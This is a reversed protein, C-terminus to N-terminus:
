RLPPQEPQDENTQQWDLVQSALLEREDLSLGNPDFRWRNHWSLLPLLEPKGIRILWHSMLEGQSRGLGNATLSQEIRFFPSEQGPRILDLIEQEHKDPLIVQESSAIRWILFIVLVLGIGYLQKEYDEIKQDNWWLQFMFQYNGLFDWVPQLLGSADNELEFWAAPTTDVAVWQNGIWAIAWAHAHRQRVIYMNLDSNWEKIAYGVVYRSPIGLHRLMITTASAFYECHGRQSQQLFHGLPDQSVDPDNQFLSYRFPFFFERITRLPDDVNKPDPFLETMLATLNEPIYLDTPTPQDGLHYLNDYRLRYYPAPILGEGQVVGYASINVEMAALEHIETLEMPVPILAKERDFELYIKAEPTRLSHESFTWRFDDAHDVTKFAPDFVEWNVGSPSNYVAETLRPPFDPKESAPAIRFAIADSLKLRGVQGLATRTKMPDTRRSIWDAIWQETKAKLGLHAQRMGSHTLVSAAVVLCMALLFHNRTFRTSRLRYLAILIILATIPFYLANERNFGSALLCTGIFVYNMDWSQQVPERQKRLSYFLVDLTMRRTTSYALVTVLPFLLIPLWALLTTIFHYDQRNMFLFVILGLMAISTLDAMRYFDLQTLAWRRNLFFRAEAIIAMPLAFWILDTSYGWFLIAAALLYRPSGPDQTLPKEDTNSM